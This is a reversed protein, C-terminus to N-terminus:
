SRNFRDIVFLNYGNGPWSCGDPIYGEGFENKIKTLINNGFCHFDHILLFYKDNLFPKIADLDRELAEDTHEADIFIYDFKQGDAVKPVDEPSRGIKLEINLKLEKIITDLINYSQSNQIVNKDDKYTDCAKHYEEIYSDLSLIKGKSSSAFAIASAGTGTAIEFGNKLDYLKVLKSIFEFETNTISVPYDSHRFYISNDREDYYCPYQKLLDNLKMYILTLVGFQGKPMKPTNHLDGDLM